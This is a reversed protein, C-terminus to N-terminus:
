PLTAYAANDFHIRVNGEDFSEVLLGMDGETVRRDAVAALEEGNIFFRMMEGNVEVTLRNSVGIGTRVLDSEFWGDEVLPEPESCGDECFGIWVFGDSSIEFLYFNTTAEDYLFMLGYGNDLPGSVATAEVEYVGDGFRESPSTWYLGDAQFATLEFVGNVIRGSAEVTGDDSTVDGDAWGGTREFEAIYLWDRAMGPPPPVPTSSAEAPELTAGPNTASGTDAEITAVAEEFIETLSESFIFLSACAIVVCCLLLGGVGGVIWAWSPISRGGKEDSGSPQSPYEDSPFSYSDQQDAM